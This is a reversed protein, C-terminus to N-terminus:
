DGSKKNKLKDLLPLKSGFDGMQIAKEKEKEKKTLYIIECRKV